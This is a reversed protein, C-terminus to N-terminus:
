RAIFAQMARAVRDGPEVGREIIGMHDRDPIVEFTVDKAGNRKLVAALLENEEVRAMVDHEGCLLLLRPAKASAHQLPSADDIRPIEGPLGREELVTSHTLTQGSIAIVGSLLPSEGDKVAPVYRADLSVMLALYGGASHGGLYIRERDYGYDAAHQGAWVVAAASDEIYAPFKVQPSLRYNVMAVAFGLRCLGEGIKRNTPDAKEGGTLSGGHLYVLLPPKEVGPPMYLDLKLRDAGPVTPAVYPIDSIVLPSPQNSNAEAQMAGAGFVLM